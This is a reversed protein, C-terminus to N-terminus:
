HKNYYNVKYLEARILEKIQKVILFRSVHNTSYVCLEIQVFLRAADVTSPSSHLLGGSMMPYPASPSLLLRCISYINHDSITRSCIGSKSFAYEDTGSHQTYHFTDTREIKRQLIANELDVISAKLNSMNVAINDPSVDTLYLRFKSHEFTFKFSIDLLQLAVYARDHWSLDEINNLPAGCNEEIVTRGCYGLLRPVPWNEEKPFIELLLPEANINLLTWLYSLNKYAFDKLFIQATELSCVQFNRLKEEILFNILDESKIESRIDPFDDGKDILKKIVVETGGSRAFYVNKVSFLNFVVKSFSDYQLTTNNQLEACYNLGFCWPCTDVESLDWATKM